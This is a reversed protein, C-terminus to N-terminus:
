ATSSASVGSASAAATGLFDVSAIGAKRSRGGNRTGSVSAAGAGSAVGIAESNGEPRLGPPIALWVGKSGPFGGIAAAFGAM